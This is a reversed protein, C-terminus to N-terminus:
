VECTLGANREDIRRTLSYTFPTFHKQWFRSGQINFSEYDVGLREFGNERLWSVISQLIAAGYGTGRLSSKVYAGCINMSKEDESAFTEGGHRLMMYAAPAEDEFAAWIYHDKQSLWGCLEELSCAEHVKMFMPARKYYRLHERHLELLAGASEPTVRRIDFAGKEGLYMDNLSRIADVCRLGFNQWFWANVAADDHAYMTIAHSLLGNQVWLDAAKAYLQHYMLQRDRGMAAHGYIPIYVGRSLGFLEGAEMGTLFGQLKGDEEAAVGLGNGALDSVMREFFDAKSREPLVPVAARETQYAKCLLEGAERIHCQEFPVTNM